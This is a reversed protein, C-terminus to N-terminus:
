KLKHFGLGGLTLIIYHLGGLGSWELVIGLRTRGM